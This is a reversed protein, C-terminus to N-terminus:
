PLSWECFFLPPVPSAQLQVAIINKLTDFHFNKLFKHGSVTSQQLQNLMVVSIPNHIIVYNDLM